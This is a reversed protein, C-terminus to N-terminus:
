WSYYLGVSYHHISLFQAGIKLVGTLIFLTRLPIFSCLETASFSPCRLFSQLFGEPFLFPRGGPGQRFGLSLSELGAWREEAWSYGTQM